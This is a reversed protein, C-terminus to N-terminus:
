TTLLGPNTASLASHRGAVNGGEEAPESSDKQASTVIVVVPESSPILSQFSPSPLPPPFSHPWLSLFSLPFPLSFQIKLPPFDLDIYPMIWFM